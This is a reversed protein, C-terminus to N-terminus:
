GKEASVLAAMLAAAQMDRWRMARRQAAEADAGWQSIQWDEDVHAAQWAAEASLRGRLVALALLASGTLATMDALAGLAFDDEAEIARRFALLSGEPQSQPMVGAIRHLRVGCEAAAWDLVPDWAADQRAILGQPEEARYCLLDCAAYSVVEEAVEARAQAVGDIVSNALRTLPMAAPEIHEGQGRWEAAVAEALAATPLLLRAKAPTRIPKKDLLVTHGGEEAAVSAEEYFRKHREARAARRARAIATDDAGSM